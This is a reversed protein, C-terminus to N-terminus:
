LGDAQESETQGFITQFSRKKALKKLRTSAAWGTLGVENAADKLSYDEFYVLEIIKKTRYDLKDSLKRISLEFDVQDFTKVRDGYLGDQEGISDQFDRSSDSSGGCGGRVQETLSFEERRVKRLGPTAGVQKDSFAFADNSQKNETILKSIIKNRLHIHLFTSLKVGKNPNYANIGEIALIM